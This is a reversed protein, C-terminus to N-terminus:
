QIAQYCNLLGHGFAWDRGPSGLDTATLMLRLRISDGHLSPRRSKVLAAGGTVHPAAMSTGSMRQYGGPVTSLIQLGPAAIEVQPGVNTFTTLRRRNDIASVAMFSPCRAPNGVPQHRDNGAAAVCLIGYQRLRRGVKEYALNYKSPDHTNFPSGLSLNTVHMRFRACWLLGNLVWSLRGFGQRNLVKVAFLDARPAVGIIGRRNALAATIGACHTGHGHDDRWSSVGPVFSVGGVVRIDPHSPDIGTDIIAVRARTGTTYRWAPPANVMRINPLIVDFLIRRRTIEDVDITRLVEEVKQETIPTSGNLRQLVQEIVERAVQGVQESTYPTTEPYAVGEPFDDGMPPTGAIQENLRQELEFDIDTGNDITCLMRLHEATPGSDEGEWEPELEQELREAEESELELPLEDVEYAERHVGNTVRVKAKEQQTKTAPAFARVIEDDVVAEVNSKKEVDKAEKDTLNAVVFSGETNYQVTKEEPVFDTQMTTLADVAEGKVAQAAFEQTDAGEKLLIIKPNKAM